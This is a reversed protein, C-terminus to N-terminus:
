ARPRAFQCRRLLSEFAEWGRLETWKPDVPLFAMHVDRAAFARELWKLAAERDGLGACVLAINYPPVFRSLGGQELERRVQEAEARRGMRALVYGKISLPETNGRSLRYARDLSAIASEANGLREEVKGLIVHPIWFEPAIAISKEAHIRAERYSGAFIRFQARMATIMASLPDLQQAKTIALDAESHAGSNSLVHAYMRYADASNQNLEIARSLRRKARTWDWEMWFDIRGAAVYGEALRDNLRLAENAAHVAAPRFKETAGDGAIPQSALAHALGAWALAHEPDRAIALHYYEVAKQNSAASPQESLHRGLLYWEYAELNRTQRLAVIQGDRAQRGVSDRGGLEGQIYGAIAKALEDQVQIVASGERDLNEAWIQVQDAVRILKVTVRVRQGERRVSGELLYDAGLERGIESVNKTRQRYAFTSTRAIVRLRGHNMTGLVAITEEVLGDTFYDQRQDGTLNEFPLVALTSISPRTLVRYGITAAVASTLGGLFWRRGIWRSVPLETAPSITAAPPVIPPITPAGPRSDFVGSDGEGSIPALFRYGKGTVTQLFKPEDITDRLALRIKRVATNVGSDSDVFTGQGWLSAVIEERSVLEGRKEVLLVLLEMPMRELRVLKTDRRLEHRGTDLEFDGFRWVM